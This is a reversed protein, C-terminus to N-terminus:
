PSLGGAGDAILPYRRLTVVGSEDEIRMLVHGAGIALPYGLISSRIKGHISGDPNFGIATWETDGPAVVDLAWLVGNGAALLRGIPAISDAVPTMRAERELAAMDAVPETIRNLEEVAAAVVMARMTPTVPRRQRDLMLRGASQGSPRLFDIQYSASSATAVVTDWVAVTAHLGLRLPYGSVVTRGRISLEMAITELDPIRALERTTGDPAMILLAAPPQTVTDMVGEQISGVTGLVMSGDPLVGFARHVNRPFTQSLPVSSVVGKEALIFNLRRNGADILAMTDGLGQLLDRGRRFQGPGEGSGGLVKEGRGTADFLLLTMDMPSIAITRGDPLELASNVHTLDFRTDEVSSAAATEPQDALHFDPAAALDKSNLVRGGLLSTGSGPAGAESNPAAPLIHLPGSMVRRVVIFATVLLALALVSVILRNRRDAM